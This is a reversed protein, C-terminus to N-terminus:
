EEELESEDQAEPLESPAQTEDLEVPQALPPMVEPETVAPIPEIPELPEQPPPYPYEEGPPAPAYPEFGPEKRKTGKIVLFLVILIVIVIIVILILWFANSGEEKETGTGKSDGDTDDDPIDLSDNPDSYDGGGAKGDQGLYEELNTYNDNDPDDDGDSPDFPDLGYKLEWADPISDGDSDEGTESYEIVTLEYSGTIKISNQANEMDDTRYHFLYKGVSLTLQKTFIGGELHINGSDFILGTSKNDIVVEVMPNESGDIDFHKATFTIPEKALALKPTDIPTLIPPDNVPQVNVTFTVSDTFNQYTVNVSVSESTRGSPYNFSNPYNFTLKTDSVACYSSGTEVDLESLSVGFAEIYDALEVILDIDEVAYQDPVQYFEFPGEGSTVTVTINQYGYLNGDFVSINVYDKRVGSDKPYLFTIDKDNIKTFSSNTGISLENLVNDEDSIYTTVDMVLEIDTVAIIDPIGSIQPPDNVAIVGVIIDQSIEYDMLPDYLSINIIEYNRGSPYNFSNPYNFTINLDDVAAYSSNETLVLGGVPTDEDIIKTSLDLVLDIDETATQNKISDFVQPFWVLTNNFIGTLNTDIGDSCKFRYTHRGYPSLTTSYTYQEGNTLNGDRWAQPAAPDLSMDKGIIDNDIYLRIYAPLVEPTDNELDTYVVNYTFLTQMGGENPTVSANTLGPPINVSTTFNWTYDDFPSGDFTGNNNGDLGLGANDKVASLVAVTYIEGRNLAVSPKFTASNSASYYTVTGTVTNMSSDKVLINATTITTADMAESFNITILVTTPIDTDLNEPYTKIIRPYTVDVDEFCFIKPVTADVGGIVLKGDEITPSSCIGNNGTTSILYEWVKQASNTTANLCYIKRDASGVYVKSDAVTPSSWVPGGTTYEWIKKGNTENLCYLKNDDSGIFVRGYAVAPSSYIRDGTTFNWIKTANEAWLAYVNQDKAGFYVKGDVVAPATLVDILNGTSPYTWNITGNNANLCYFKNTGDNNADGAGIYVKGGVVTPSSWVKDPMDTSWIVENSTINGDGNPDNEPLCYVKDNDDNWKDTGFYIRGDVAAPSSYIGRMMGGGITFNWIRKGTTANLCWLQPMFDNGIYVKDNYVAPSCSQGHVSGTTYNWYEDGTKLDLSYVRGEGSGIYVRGDVIAATSYAGNGTGSNTTNVTWLVNNTEPAITGPIFGNRSANHRFMTSPEYNLANNEVIKAQFYDDLQSGDYSPQEQSNNTYLVALSGLFGSLILLNIVILSVIWGTNKNKVFKVFSTIRYPKTFM